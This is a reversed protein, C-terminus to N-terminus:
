HGESLEQLNVPFMLVEKLFSSLVKKQEEINLADNFEQKAKDTLYFYYDGYPQPLSCYERTVQSFFQSKSKMFEVIGKAWGKRCDFGACIYPSPEKHNYVIGMFPYQRGWGNIQKYDVELFLWRLEDRHTTSYNKVEFHDDKLQEAVERLVLTLDYLSTMKTIDIKETIMVFGCTNKLYECYGRILAAEEEAFSNNELGSKLTDYFERWQKVDYGEKILHYNTIYGLREKGVKYAKEYQGFHHNQDWIKVEILYPKSDDKVTIRFDVRSGSNDDDPVEREIYEIDKVDLDKFFFHIWEEMFCPSAQCMAWTMDSLDNEKGFRPALNAFFCSINDM